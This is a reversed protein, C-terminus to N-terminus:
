KEKAQKGEKIMHRIYTKFCNSIAIEMQGSKSSTTHKGRERRFFPFM